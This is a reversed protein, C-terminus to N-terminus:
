DACTGKNVRTHTGSCVTGSCVTVVFSSNSGDAANIAWLWMLGSTQGSTAPMVVFAGGGGPAASPFATADFTIYHYIGTGNIAGGGVYTM